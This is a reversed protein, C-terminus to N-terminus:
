EFHNDSPNNGAVGCTSKYFLQARELAKVTDDIAAANPTSASQLAVLQDRLGFYIHRAVDGGVDREIDPAIAQKQSSKKENSIQHLQKM